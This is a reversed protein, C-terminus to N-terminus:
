RGASRESIFRLKRTEHSLPMKGRIIFSRPVSIV